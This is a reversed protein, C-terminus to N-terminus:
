AAPVDQTAEFPVSQETANTARVTVNLTFAEASGLELVQPVPATYEGGPPIQVQGLSTGPPLVMVVTNSGYGSVSIGLFGDADNGLVTIREITQQGSAVFTM